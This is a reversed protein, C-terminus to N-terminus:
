GEGVGPRGKPVREFQDSILRRLLLDLEM